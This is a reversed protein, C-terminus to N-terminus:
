GEAAHRTRAGSNLPRTNSGKRQLRECGRQAPQQSTVPYGRRRAPARRRYGIAPRGAAAPNLVHIRGHDIRTLRRGGRDAVTDRVQEDDQQGAGDTDAARGLSTILASEGTTLSTIRVQGLRGPSATPSRVGCTPRWNTPGISHPSCRWTSCAGSPGIFAQGTGSTVGWVYQTILEQFDTSFEDADALVADVFTPGLVESRTALGQTYLDDNM